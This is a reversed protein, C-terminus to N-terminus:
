YTNNNKLDTQKKLVNKYNNHKAENYIGLLYNTSYQTLINM